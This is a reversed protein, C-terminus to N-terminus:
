KSKLFNIGLKSRLSATSSIPECILPNEAGLEEWNEKNERDLHTEAGLIMKESTVM